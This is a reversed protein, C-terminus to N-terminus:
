FDRTMLTAIDRFPDAGGTAPRREATSKKDWFGALAYRAADLAHEEVGSTEYMEPNRKSRPVSGLQRILNTCTEYIILKSVVGDGRKHLRLGEHILNKGVLHDNTARQVPVGARQYFAAISRTPTVGRVRKEDNAATFASPDLWATIPRGPGREGPREMSLILEAQETPTLNDQYAERYVVLHGDSLQAVWLACFPAGIGWDIGMGKSVGAGIEVPYDEPKVVHIDVNFDPFAMGAFIGWDGDRMARRLVPDAIDDFNHEYDTNLHPNDDLRAPIFRRARGSAEIRDGEGGAVRRMIPIPQNGLPAPDIFKSKLTAHGIDGPNGGSRVGIVPVSANGSRIRLILRDVISPNMLQREDIILLQCSQSYYDTGDQENEAYLFRIRSSNPFRLERLTDNWKAGFPRCMSFVDTLDRIASGRLQPITKRFYWVEMGAYTLANVIGIMLLAITKGGGMAGGYFVDWEKAALFQTQRPSAPRLNPLKDYLQDVTFQPPDLLDAAFLLPNVAVTM